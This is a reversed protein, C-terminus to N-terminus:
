EAAQVIEPAQQKAAAIHADAEQQAREVVYQRLKHILGALNEVAPPANM